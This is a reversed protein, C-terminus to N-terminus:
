KLTKSKNISILVLQLDIPIALSIFLRSTNLICYGKELRLVAFPLTRCGNIVQKISGDISACPLVLFIGFFALLGVIQHHNQKKKKNAPFRGISSEPTRRDVSVIGYM